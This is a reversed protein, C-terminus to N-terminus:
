PHPQALRLRVRRRWLGGAPWLDPDPRDAIAGQYRHAQNQSRSQPRNQSRPESRAVGSRRDRRCRHPAPRIDAAHLLRRAGTPVARSDPEPGPGVDQCRRAGAPDPYSLARRSLALRSLGLSRSLTACVRTPRQRAGTGRYFYELSIMPKATRSGRGAFFTTLPDLVIITLARNIKGGGAEGNRGPRPLFPAPCAARELFM